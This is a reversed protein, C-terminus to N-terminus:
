CLFWHQGLCLWCRRLLSLTGEREGALMKQLLKDEEPIIALELVHM